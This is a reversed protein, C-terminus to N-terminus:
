RLLGFKKLLAIIADWIGNSVKTAKAPPSTVGAGNTATVTFDYTTGLKLGTVTIPSGTGQATVATGTGRTPTATVTYGTVSPSNSPTFTVVARTPGPNTRVDTPAHPSPPLAIGGPNGVKSNIDVECAVTTCGAPAKMVTGGERGVYLSGADDVAVSIPNTGTTITSQQGDKFRVVRNDHYFPAYFSGDPGMALDVPRDLPDNPNPAFQTIVQSTGNALSVKVLANSAITYLNGQGDLVAGAQAAVSAIKSVTGGTDIKWLASGNTDVVYVTGTADVAVGNPSQLSDAPPTAPDCDRDGAIISSSGSPTIKMVTYAYYNAVYLNGAADVAIKSPDVKAREPPTGAPCNATVPVSTVTGDPGVKVIRSGNPDSVYVPAGGQAPQDAAHAAPAAAASLLAM